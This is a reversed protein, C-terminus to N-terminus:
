VVWKREFETLWEPVLNKLPFERSTLFGTGTKYWGWGDYKDITLMNIVPRAGEMRFKISGSNQASTVRVTNRCTEVLKSFQTYDSNIEPCQDMMARYVLRAALFHDATSDTANLFADRSQYGTVIEPM